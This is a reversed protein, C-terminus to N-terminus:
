RDSRDDAALGLHENLAALESVVEALNRLAVAHKTEAAEVAESTNLIDRLVSRRRLIVARTVPTLPAPEHEAPMGGFADPNPNTTM